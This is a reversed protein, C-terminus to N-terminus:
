SIIHWIMRYLTKLGYVIDQKKGTKGLSYKTYRVEIPVETYSLRHLKIQQIIESDYEYDDGITDVLELAKQSFARFGSQSDTVRIGFLAWTILNGIHNALVKHRPMGQPNHLRSGLVVEYDQEILKVMPAIDQPNHQGDGDLTVVIRAGKLKAAQMGTKVAAGKGRNIKHRLAVVGPLTSAIDHTNDHSGDDVIIINNWGARNIETVVDNLVRSENFVPMVIWVQESPIM